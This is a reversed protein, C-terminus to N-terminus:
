RAYVLVAAYHCAAAALVLAHFVEHYGFVAPIPNPRGRAYAVAGLTYLVGGLAILGVAVVGARDLLQPTAVAGAWGLAIYITATLRKPADPWLLALGIGAVAGSWVVALLVTALTGHMVLLAFPTVTAAVLVFIMSHDIRRIWRRLGPQWTRRHYIASTGLLGSLGMAYVLVALRARGDPALAILLAGLPLSAVFGWQHLVGRLRPKVAAIEGEAM